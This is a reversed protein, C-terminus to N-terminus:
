GGATAFGPAAGGQQSFCGHKLVAQIDNIAKNAAIGGHARQRLAAEYADLASRVDKLLKTNTAAQDDAALGLDMSRTLDIEVAMALRRAAQLALTRVGSQPYGMLTATILALDDRHNGRLQPAPVAATTLLHALEEPGMTWWRGAFGAALAAQVAYGPTWPYQQGAVFCANWGDRYDPSVHSASRHFPLYENGLKWAHFADGDNPSPNM